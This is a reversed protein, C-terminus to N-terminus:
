GRPSGCEAACRRWPMLRHGGRAVADASGAPQGAVGRHHPCGPYTWRTAKRSTKYYGGSDRLAPFRFATDPGVMGSTIATRRKTTLARRTGAPRNGSRRRSGAPRAPSGFAVSSGKDSPGSGARAARSVTCLFTQSVAWRVPAVLDESSGAGHKEWAREQMPRMGLKM